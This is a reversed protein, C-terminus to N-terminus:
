QAKQYAEIQKYDIFNKLARAKEAPSMSDVHPNMKRLEMMLSHLQLDNPGPQPRELPTGFQKSPQQQYFNAPGRMRLLDADENTNLGGHFALLAAPINAKASGFMTAYDIPNDSGVTLASPVAVGLARNRLTGGAQMHVPGGDALPKADGPVPKPADVPPTAGGPILGLERLMREIEIDSIPPRQQLDRTYLNADTANRKAAIAARAAMEDRLAQLAPPM